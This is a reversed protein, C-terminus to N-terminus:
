QPDQWQTRPHTITVNSSHTQYRTGDVTELWVMGNWYLHQHLVRIPKTEGDINIYSTPAIAKRYELDAKRIEHSNSIAGCLYYDAAWLGCLFLIFVVVAVVREANAHSLSM